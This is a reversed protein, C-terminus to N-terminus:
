PKHRLLVVGAAIMWGMGVPIILFGYSLLGGAYQAVTTLIGTTFALYSWVRLWNPALIGRGATAILVPGTGLVLVTGLWDAHTAFWGVAEAIAAAAPSESPALRVVVALWAMYSAVVLPVAIWYNYRILQVLVPNQEGLMTMMTAGAGILIVGTIWLSLNVILLNQAALAERLFGAMDDDYLSRDLDVGSAGLVAAGAIMCFSGTLIAYAGARAANTDQQKEM